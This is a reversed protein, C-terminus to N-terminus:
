CLNSLARQVKDDNAGSRRTDLSRPREGVKEILNQWMIVMLKCGFLRAYDQHLHSFFHESRELLIQTSVGFLCQLLTSNLYTKSFGYSLNTGGEHAQLRAFFDLGM